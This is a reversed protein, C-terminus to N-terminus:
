LFRTNRLRELLQEKSQKNKGGIFSHSGLPLKFFVM